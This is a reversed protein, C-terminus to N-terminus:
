QITNERDFRNLVNVLLVITGLMLASYADGGWGDHLWIFLQEYNNGHFWSLLTNRIINAFISISAAGALLLISKKRNNLSGTWHLLLLAVYLSTFLMKLGACYPAVEVLRGNVALYIGDVNVEFGAQMLLFGAVGAIFTQLPLTYPTLLYPLSNPTALLTLLLPFKQLKLGSIGKLLLCVGALVIPFSLNVFETTGTLYFGTGLLLLIAGLPHSREELRLWQKRLGWAIFVAYPFGILGHSFYEHEINISKNLWGDYWHLVLPAYLVGLLVIVIYNLLNPEITLAFKSKALM